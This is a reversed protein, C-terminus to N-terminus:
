CEFPGKSSRECGRGTRDLLADEGGSQPAKRLPDGRLRPDAPPSRRAGAPSAFTAAAPPRAVRRPVSVLRAPRPTSRRAPDGQTPSGRKRIASWRSSRWGATRESSPRHCRCCARSSARCRDRFLVCSARSRSWPAAPRRCASEGTTNAAAGRTRRRVRRLRRASGAPKRRATAPTGDGPRLRGPM